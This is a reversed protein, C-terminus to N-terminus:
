AAVEVFARWAREVDACCAIVRARAAEDDFPPLWRDFADHQAPTLPVIQDANAKRRAGKGEKGVHANVCPGAGDWVSPLGRVFAAREASGYTRKFERAKRARNVSPLRGSSPLSSRLSSRASGLPAGALGRRRRPGPGSRIGTRKM